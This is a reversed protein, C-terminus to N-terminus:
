AVVGPALPARLALEAVIRDQLEFLNERQGDVKVTSTVVGTRVDVVRGTIRLLYGLHQYGGTVLWAAGLRRSLAIANREVAM